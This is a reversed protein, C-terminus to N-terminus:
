CCLFGIPRWGSAYDKDGELFSYSSLNFYSEEFMIHGSGHMGGVGDFVDKHM